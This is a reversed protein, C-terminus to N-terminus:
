PGMLGGLEAPGLAKAETLGPHSKGMRYEEHATVPKQYFGRWERIQPAVGSAVTQKGLEKPLQQSIPGMNGWSQTGLIGM